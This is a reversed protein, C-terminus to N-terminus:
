FLRRVPVALGLLGWMQILRKLTESQIATFAVGFEHCRPWRVTVRELFLEASSGDPFIHLEFDAGLPVASLSM